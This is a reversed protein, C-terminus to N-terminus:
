RYDSDQIESGNIRKKKKWTMHAHSFHESLLQGKEKDVILRTIEWNHAFRFNLQLLCFMCLDDYILNAYYYEIVM